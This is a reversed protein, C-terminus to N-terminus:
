YAGYGTWKVEVFTKPGFVHRFHAGWITEPSSERSTLAETALLNPVGARGKISYSDHQFTFMLTNSSSPQWTLKANFRPSWQELVTRPGSPDERLNYREASVFFFLKDPVIPGGLQATYDLLHNTKAPAALAPNATAFKDSINNASFSEGAYRLDVLASHRNGGSKTVTNVVAGSFSGYEAPAGLGQVQVEEIMNYDYFAWATGNEPDRTDVGDLLLANSADASGGFASGNNVGPAYNMLDTAANSPRIPLSFLQDQGLANTQAASKTDVLPAEGVVNVTERRSEVTLGFDVTATRGMSVSFPGKRVTAFGSLASTLDYPGPEIALFRFTGTSDTVATRSGMRGSLTVTVGPLVGGQEDRVIGEVSGVLSQALCPGAISAALLALGLPRLMRTM